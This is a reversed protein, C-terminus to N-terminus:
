SEELRKPTSHSERHGNPLLELIRTLDWITYAVQDMVNRKGFRAPKGNVILRVYAKPTWTRASWTVCATYRRRAVTWEIMWACTPGTTPPLFLGCSKRIARQESPDTVPHLGFEVCVAEATGRDLATM